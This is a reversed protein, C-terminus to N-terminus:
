ALAPAQRRAVFGTAIGIALLIGSLMALEWNTVGLVDNGPTALTIGGIGLALRSIWGTVGCGLDGLLVLYGQLAGSVFVIGIM